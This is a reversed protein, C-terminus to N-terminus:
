SIGFVLLCALVGTGAWIALTLKAFYNATSIGVTVAPVLWAFGLLCFAAFPLMVITPPHKPLMGLMLNCALAWACMVVFVRIWEPIAAM